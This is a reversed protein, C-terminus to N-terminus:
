CGSMTSYLWKTQICAIKCESTTKTRMHVPCGCGVMFTSMTTGEWLAPVCGLDPHGEDACMQAVREVTKIITSFGDGRHRRQYTSTTHTTIPMIANTFSTTSSLVTGNTASPLTTYTATAAGSGSSRFMSSSSQALSTPLASNYSLPHILNFSEPQTPPHFSSPLPPLSKKQSKDSFM